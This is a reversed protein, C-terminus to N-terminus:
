GVYPTWMVCWDSGTDSPYTTMNSEKRPPEKIDYVKSPTNNSGLDLFMIFNSLSHFEWVIAVLESKSFGDKCANILLKKTEPNVTKLILKYLKEYDYKKMGHHLNQLKKWSDLHVKKLTKPM